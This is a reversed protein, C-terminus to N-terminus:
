RICHLISWYGGRTKIPLRGLACTLIALGMSWIDASYTYAQGDSAHGEPELQVRILLSAGIREPSMYTITGVFTHARDLPPKTNGDTAGMNESESSNSQQPPVSTDTTEAEMQRVIGLDSIQRV